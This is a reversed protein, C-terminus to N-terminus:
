EGARGGADFRMAVDWRQDHAHTDMGVHLTHIIPLVVMPELIFADM